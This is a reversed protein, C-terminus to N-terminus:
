KFLLEKSLAGKKNQEDFLLKAFQDAALPRSFFYGQIEDCGETRLLDMQESTEVGEAITRLHLSKALAIITKVIEEDDADVTIDSVFSRDVKLRHINLRKLYSLSSYGTGFDDISLKIGYQHLQNMIKIAITSSEMTIRETLELELYKCPIENKDLIQTIKEILNAQRFQIASINVSVPLLPLGTDHWSKIQTIATHLVWEGISLIQGSDEAIPIFEAPSIMGYEPHKWRLLAECGVINGTLIDAQPQYHLFLENRSLANHLANELKLVRNTRLYMEQTFFRFACRGDQKARYMASDANQILIEATHGDNPYISIGISPTVLLEYQNIRYPASLTKIIKKAVHAAGDSDTDPFLLIFEDGGLRSVTDEGRKIKELRNATMVLVSDGVRHGLSDNINKFRDLDLFMLAITQQTRQAHNIAQEIRDNLLFRNPLSTLADYYALQHIHAEAAKDQSIDRNIGIYNIIRAQEDRIVSISLFVPIYVGNKHRERIEGQWYGDRDVQHWIQQRTHTIFEHDHNKYQLNDLKSGILEMSDYGTMSCFAQNVSLINKEADFIIIGEASQDFVRATLEMQQQANKQDTIDSFVAVGGKITGTKDVLPRATVSLWGGEPVEKNRTFMEVNDCSEGAIARTLPLKDEPYNTKQDPLFYGYRGYTSAESISAHTNGIFREAVPNLLLYSGTEDAVAVGDGMSNLVSQLINSQELLDNRSRELDKNTAELLCNSQHLRYLLYTTGILITISTLLVAPMWLQRIGQQQLEASQLENQPQQQEPKRPKSQEPHGQTLGSLQQHIQISNSEVSTTPSSNLPAYPIDNELLIHIRRVDQEWKNANDTTHSNELPASQAFFSSGILICL